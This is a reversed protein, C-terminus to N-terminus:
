KSVRMELTGPHECKKLNAYETQFATVGLGWVLNMRGQFHVQAIMEGLSNPVSRFEEEM